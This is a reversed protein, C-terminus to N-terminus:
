VGRAVPCRHLLRVCVGRGNDGWWRHRGALEGRKREDALVGRKKRQSDEESEIRWTGAVRRCQSASRGNRAASGARSHRRLNRFAIIVPDESQARKLQEKSSLIEDVVRKDKRKREAQRTQYDQWWESEEEITPIREGCENDDNISVMEADTEDFVPLKDNESLRATHPPPRRESELSERRVLVYPIGDGDRIENSGRVANCMAGYVPGITVASALLEDKEHATLDNAVTNDIRWALHACMRVWAETAASCTTYCVSPLLKESDSTAPSSLSALRPNRSLADAHRNSQGSRHKINFQFEQLRLVWRTLRSSESKHLWQLSHHDTRVTFKSGYLYPRFTECAWLIALAELERVTWKKETELLKRSAYAIVHEKLMDDSQMLIAGLGVLSADTDVIFPQKFDPHSLIPATTLATKLDEFADQADDGWIFPVKEGTLQTLAFARTSFHCIFRRYYSALGLFSKVATKNTPRPFDAVAATKAPDPAIGEATVIHGLYKIQKCCLFCKKPAVVLRAERFRQWM